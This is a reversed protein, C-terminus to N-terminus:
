FLHIVDKKTENENSDDLLYKFWFHYGQLNNDEKKEGLFTHEFGSLSKYKGWNYQKFWTDKLLNLFEKSEMNKEHTENYYKRTIEFVKNNSIQYMLKNMEKIEEKTNVEYVTEDSEYNDFLKQVYFFESYM